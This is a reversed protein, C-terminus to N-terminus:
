RMDYPRDGPVADPIITTHRIARDGPVAHPPHNDRATHGTVSDRATHGTARDRATVDRGM